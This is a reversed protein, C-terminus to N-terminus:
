QMMPFSAASPKGYKSHKLKAKGNKFTVLYLNDFENEPINQQPFDTIGLKYIIKPIINSHAIIFIPKNWDNNKEIATFLYVCSTDAMYHATDIGLQLNLSDATHQTRKYQTVYARKIKKDRLTRMLDGARINGDETLLPDDGKEKEAHRVIYLTTNGTFPNKEQAATDKAFAFSLLLFILQKIMEIDKRAALNFSLFAREDIWYFYRKRRPVDADKCQFPYSNAKKVKTLM